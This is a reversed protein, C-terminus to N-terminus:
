DAPEPWDDIPTESCKPDLFSIRNEIEIFTQPYDILQVRLKYPYSQGIKQDLDDM